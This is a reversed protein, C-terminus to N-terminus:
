FVQDSLSSFVARYECVLGLYLNLFLVAPEAVLVFPRVLSEYIFKKHNM